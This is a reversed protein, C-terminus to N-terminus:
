GNGQEKDHSATAKRYARIVADLASDDNGCRSDVDTWALAADVVARMADREDLLRLVARALCMSENRTIEVGLVHEALERLEADTM